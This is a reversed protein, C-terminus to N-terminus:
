VCPCFGWGQEGEEALARCVGRGGSSAESDVPWTQRLLQADVGM